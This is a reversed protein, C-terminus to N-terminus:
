SDTSADTNCFIRKYEATHPDAADFNERMFRGLRGWIEGKMEPAAFCYSSAISALKADIRETLQGNARMAARLQKLVATLDRM